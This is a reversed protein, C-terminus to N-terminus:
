VFYLIYYFTCCIFASTPTALGPHMMLTLAKSLMKCEVKVCGTTMQVDPPNLDPRPILKRFKTETAMMDNKFKLSLTGEMNGSVIVSKHSSKMRDLVMKMHKNSTLLPIELQITSSPIFPPRFHEMASMSLVHIPINQVVEIDIARLKCSLFCLGKQQLLRLSVVTAEKGSSLAQMMVKSNCQFAIHNEARSEIFFASFFDSIVLKAFGQLTNGIPTLCLLLESPSLCFTLTPGLRYLDKIIDHFLRFSAKSLTARFKM